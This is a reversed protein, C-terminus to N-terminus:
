VFIGKFSGWGPVEWATTFGKGTSKDRFDDMSWKEGTLNKGHRIDVNPWESKFAVTLDGSKGPEFSHEKFGNAKIDDLRKQYWDILLDRYAVLGSVQNADWHACFGDSARVRWFNQNYYFKDKTPPIFTFHSPHYLVDHECMYIIDADSAKLAELIQTFYALYGRPLKVHINKGFHPMPKLSASVIPIGINKLQSQVAHAIKLKLQNDTFFLIGKKVSTVGKLTDLQQQTWGQVPWFRELLWSVPHIQKPFNDTRNNLFLKKAHKKAAEQDRGHIEYPFGFDGGQTRFMHAYWTKKNCMVQGGSLWTKCAVEIGQSGWSGFNEDCIGLEWYKDRTMMFCSGQLSMTPTIDGKGEPRKAYERFYQFHPEADFCYSTSKPSEKGIWRMVRETPEGCEKCVGSPGQYRIHGKPCVWDFAHLNRMLPVMTWDDHGAIGELLVRDFGQDFACHADLKMVYKARSLSVGYNTGARQGVSKTFHLLKVRENDPIGVDPWYGDLVAIIETEGERNKLIDDITNQLFIENKAPIIISLDM